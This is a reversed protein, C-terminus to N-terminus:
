LTYSRRDSESLYDRFDEFGDADKKVTKGALIEIGTRWGYKRSFPNVVQRRNNKQSNNISSIGLTDGNYVESLAGGRSTQSCMSSYATSHASPQPLCKGAVKSPPYPNQRNEKLVSADEVASFESTTEAESESLYDRFDEFGDADKRITKGALIEIGTRWGYKRSFPNVVQRRDPARSSKQSM